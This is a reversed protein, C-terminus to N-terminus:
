RAPGDLIQGAVIQKLQEPTPTSIVANFNVVPTRQERWGANRLFEIMAKTDREVIAKDFLASSVACVGRAKGRNLVRDLEASRTKHEYLTSVDVGCLAAIQARTM